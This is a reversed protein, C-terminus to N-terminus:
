RYAAPYCTERCKDEICGVTCAAHGAEEADKGCSQKCTSEANSKCSYCDKVPRLVRAKDDRHDPMECKDACRQKACRTKCAPNSGQGIKKCGEACTTEALRTLCSDCDSSAGSESQGDKGDSGAGSGRRKEAAKQCLRNCTKKYCNDVCSLREKEATIKKCTSECYKKQHFYCIQCIDDSYGLAPWFLSWIAALTLSILIYRCHM